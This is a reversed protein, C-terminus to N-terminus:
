KRIEKIEGTTFHVNHTMINSNFADMATLELHKDIITSTSTISEAGKLQNSNTLPAQGHFHLRWQALLIKLTWDILWVQKPITTLTMRLLIVVEGNNVLWNKADQLQSWLSTDSVLWGTKDELGCLCALAEHQLLLMCHSPIEYNSPKTRSTPLNFLSLLPVM